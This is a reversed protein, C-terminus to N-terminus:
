KVHQQLQKLLKDDLSCLLQLDNRMMCASSSIDTPWKGVLKLMKASCLRIALVFKSYMELPSAM